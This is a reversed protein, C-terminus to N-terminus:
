NNNKCNCNTIINNTSNKFFCRSKFCTNLMGAKIKLLSQNIISTLATWFTDLTIGTQSDTLASIFGAM